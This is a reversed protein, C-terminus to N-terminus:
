FFVQIIEHFDKYRSALQETRVSPRVHCLQYDSKAIIRARRSGYMIHTALILPMTIIKMEYIRSILLRKVTVSYPIKIMKLPM